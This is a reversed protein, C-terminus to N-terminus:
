RSAERWATKGPAVPQPPVEKSRFSANGNPVCAPEFCRVLGRARGNRQAVLTATTANSTASIQEAVFDAQAYKGGTEVDILYFWASASCDSGGTKNTVIGVAGYVITPRTNAQEGAPLDVFWGRGTTWDVAAGTITDPARNYSKAVLATRANDLFAGDKIAYITQVKTNGFDTIDLLRGTAVLVIRDNGIHMLEPPATVPQADGGPGKLTALKFPADKAKLDFRWVNGLLDGGYVYRVTGTKEIFGSVQALGSEAGLAGDAVTFEHIVAGTTANLMWMRGKGDAVNNYGSTLLVVYGDDATRVIQARGLTQGVKAQTAADAVAPFEWKVKLALGAEDLGRPNTVDIAYYFNGAAGMGAVLLKNGNGVKGVVPSGDLKTKFTYSRRTTEGIEALVPRPVFAWLEKGPEDRTDFAHLMGEGSAVYLVGEEAAIYPESSIVAGLLSQRQRFTTGEGDRKGRLYDIVAATSGYVGGPNVMSGVAAESFSVGAAGNSSAIVRTTWDRANLLAAASWAATGNIAATAPDIANATIDGKWGSPDYTGFYAKSDGRVLNATSVAAGSQASTQSLIALLGAQIASAAAGADTALYMQGRGNITAHWLDDIMTATNSVPAPWAPATVFPDVTNPWLTGKMGLTLAYTNLHLDPNPDPNSGTQPGLPVRGAPLPSVSARLPLTFYALAKDHLSGAAISQYPAAAGYTAQNYAPPAVTADNAFGDTIVFQANRQCAYQIIGTNTDFQNRIYSMTSHTPTGGSGEATYFRGAVALRNAAVSTADADFMTPAAQANFAVVGMRLGSINELVQGMAAGLMLRRKRYYTFWNAFNQMEAAYTRGSPYTNGPKIEYRKLTNGDFNTICTTGDAICAEKKWFTAPYYSVAATCLGRSTEVTYPLTGPFAAFYCAVDTAGSPITMGALFTFKWNAANSSLNADLALTTSGNVPHSKAATASADGFTSASAGSVYGPSWPAYTKTSEYYITNYDASRTWAVQTTPPIAYGYASNPDAYVRNGAGTGNPFLYFLPWDKSVAGTRKAGGPYLTADGYNGYFWGQFTGDIMVEADMSGSDDMGFVVNPKALVSAKLPLEAVDTAHSAAAALLGGLAFLSAIIQTTAKM